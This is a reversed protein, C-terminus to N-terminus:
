NKNFQKMKEISTYFKKISDHLKKTSSNVKKTSSNLKLGMQFLSNEVEELSRKGFNKLRLLDEKSYLLLEGITQINARKLCTYPRLSLDLNGIDVIKVSEKLRSGKKTRTKLGENKLFKPKIFFSQTLKLNKLPEFIDFIAIVALQIARFPHLTGNVWVEMFIHEEPYETDVEEDVEITYNVRNIPMFIPDITLINSTQSPKFFDFYNQQENSFNEEKLSNQKKSINQKKSANQKKSFNEKNSVNEEDSLNEEELSNEENSSPSIAFYESCYRLLQESSFQVWYDKGPCILFTIQLKGDDCLTAIEHDPNVCKIFSPFVIDGAKVNGPGEIELTATLPTQIDFESFVVIKKINLLLDLVSERVGKLSTYEHAVGDIKVAIIALGSLESLLARRLNNAITLTYKKQFPGLKFLAYVNTPDNVQSEVCVISLNKM